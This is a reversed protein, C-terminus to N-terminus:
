GYINNLRERLEKYNIAKSYKELEEDTAQNLALWVNKEKNLEGGDQYTNVAHHRECLFVIAWAENIQKGAHILAHEWTIRGGCPTDNARACQQPRSLLEQKLKESIKRM